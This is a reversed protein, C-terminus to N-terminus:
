KKLEFGVMVDDYHDTLFALAKLVSNNSLKSLLSFLSLLKDADFTLQLKKKGDRKLSASLPVGHWKFTIKETTPNYNYTGKMSAGLMSISCSGDENFTFQPKVKYLGIKKYANKLKKKLKGKAIPKGLGDLFNKGSVDVCPANYTWEGKILSNVQRTEREIDNETITFVEDPQLDGTSVANQKSTGCSSVMALVCFFLLVRKM